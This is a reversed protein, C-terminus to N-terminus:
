ARGRRLAHFDGRVANIEESILELADLMSAHLNELDARTAVETKECSKVREQEKEEKVARRSHVTNPSVVAGGGAGRQPCM